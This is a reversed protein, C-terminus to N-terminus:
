FRNHCQDLTAVICPAANLWHICVYSVMEVGAYLLNERGPLVGIWKIVSYQPPEGYQVTSEIELKYPNQHLKVPAPM